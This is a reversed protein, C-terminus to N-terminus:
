ATAVPLLVPFHIGQSRTVLAGPPGGSGLSHPGGVKEGRWTYDAPEDRAVELRRVVMELRRGMGAPGAAHRIPM